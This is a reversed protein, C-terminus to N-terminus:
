VLVSDTIFVVQFAMEWSRPSSTRGHISLFPNVALGLVQTGSHAGAFRALFLLDSDPKRSRPPASFCNPRFLPLRWATM